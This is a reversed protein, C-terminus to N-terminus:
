EIVATPQGGGERITLTSGPAVRPLSQSQYNAHNVVEGGNCTLLAELTRASNSTDLMHVSADCFLTLAQMQVPQDSALQAAVGAPGVFLAVAVAFCPHRCPM